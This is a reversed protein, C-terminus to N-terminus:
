LQYIIKLAMIESLIVYIRRDYTTYAYIALLCVVADAATVGIIDGDSSEWEINGFPVTENRQWAAVRYWGVQTRVYILIYLGNTFVESM